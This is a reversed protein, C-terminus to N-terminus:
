KEFKMEKLIIKLYLNLNKNYDFRNLRRYAHNIKKKNIKINNSYYIMKKALDNHNGINFLIGGKGNDLIEKPGTKCNSSIVFKKLTLAELLVNPLGEYKSTLVLLDSLRLFKYPNKQFGLFKVNKQLKHNITYKKLEAYYKGNGIIIAKFNIKDKIIKLAKIFTIPDKQDVLRGIFVIKLHKFKEFFNYKIKEKSYNVINNKNLPNYICLTNINFKDKYEKKFENSNVIIKNPLKLFFQFLKKRFYNLKWGSPSSNSRIIIKINLIKCIITCYLNAQFALLLHNKDKILIKILEILCFFYKLRRSSINEINVAPNIIKLNKFKSNFSKSATILTTNKLKTGLFNSIIFLNKEVGGIEISPMFIILKKQKM